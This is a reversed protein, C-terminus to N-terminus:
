APAAAAPKGSRDRRNMAGAGYDHEALLRNHTRCLLGVNEVRHDGGMGFPHRHHFELRHREPCRRGQEDVFGCRSGDRELVARRVTAPIHRSASSPASVQRSAPSTAQVSATSPAGAQRLDRRPASTKGFRRAELRELKESVAKEIIAALDGDPVESRMLAQLRELKDHLTASATFQVKYRAPSLPAVVAREATPISHRRFAVGTDAAAAHPGGAVTKESPLLDCQLLGAQVGDPRLGPGAAPAGGPDFAHAPAWPAAAGDPGLGGVAARAAAASAVPEAAAGSTAPDAATTSACRTPLKRMLAPADPRPMLEAVLEEIQRKSRHTARALLTDRNEPTLLPLLIAIGSLHIRGDRLMSLLVPHQRAARAVTIRLYAEAGSLYLRTTCYVFMSPAAERAYLGRADVEGIHAVLDAEIRRSHAVLENLRRVLEDDALSTLSTLTHDLAMDAIYAPGPAGRLSGRPSRLPAPHRARVGGVM